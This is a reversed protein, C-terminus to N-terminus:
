EISELSDASGYTRSLTERFGISAAKAQLLPESFRRKSRLGRAGFMVAQGIQLMALAADHLPMRDLLPHTSTGVRELRGILYRDATLDADDLSLSTAATLDHGCKCYRPSAPLRSPRNGCNPCVHLLLVGHYPCSVVGALDWWVRRHPRCGIPGDRMELDSQLCRPCMRGAGNIALHNAKVSVRESGIRLIGKRDTIMTTAILSTEAVRTLLALETLRRGCELDHVFDAIGFGMDAVFARSTSYGHRVALRGLLGYAPEFQAPRIRLSVPQLHPPSRKM